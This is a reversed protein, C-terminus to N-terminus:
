GYNTTIVIGPTNFIHGKFIQADVAPHDRIIHGAFRTKVFGPIHGINHNAFMHFTNFKNYGTLGAALGKQRYVPARLHKSIIIRINFFLQGKLRSQQRSITLPIASTRACDNTWGPNSWLAASKRRIFYPISFM